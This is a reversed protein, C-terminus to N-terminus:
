LLDPFRTAMCLFAAVSLWVNWFHFLAFLYAAILVIWLVNIAASGVNARRTEHRFLEALRESPAEVHPPSWVLGRVVFGTLNTGVFELVVWALFSKLICLM